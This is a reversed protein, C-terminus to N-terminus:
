QSIQFRFHIQEVTFHLLDVSLKRCQVTNIETKYMELKILIPGAEYFGRIFNIQRRVQRKLWFKWFVLIGKKLMATWCSVMYEISAVSRLVTNSPIFFSILRVLMLQGCFPFFMAISTSLDCGDVLPTFFVYVVLCTKWNSSAYRAIAAISLSCEWNINSVM